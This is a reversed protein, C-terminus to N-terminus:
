TVLIEPPLSRGRTTQEDMYMYMLLMHYHPYFYGPDARSPQPFSPSSRVDKNAYQVFAYGRPKGRLAGTKHFLFDM